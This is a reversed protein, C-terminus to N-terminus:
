VQRQEARQVAEEMAREVAAGSAMVRRSTRRPQSCIGIQMGGGARAMVLGLEAQRMTWDVTVEVPALGASATLEPARRSSEVTLGAFTEIVDQTWARAQKVSMGPLLVGFREGDLQALEPGPGPLSAVMTELFKAFGWQIEDATRQGYQMLVARLADVAVVAMAQEQGDAIGRRLSAFFTHRNALGTLPDTQARASIEGELAHKQQVSRLLGIAGQAAGDDPDIPKLSLAYWNQCAPSNCSRNSGCDGDDADSNCACNRVPFEVWGRQAKGAFVQAVYRSVEPAHDAEAFDAIHPMLLLSSLDMGLEAANQSAHVIFGAADLRMVIDGSADEILGHLVRGEEVSFCMEM